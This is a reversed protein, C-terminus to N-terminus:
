QDSKSSFSPTLSTKAPQEQPLIVVYRSRLADFAKRKLEARESALWASRVEPEIEEFSPVRAPVIADAFVLHWGYGSELPGQWVGPKVEFLAKAFGPGFLKAVDDYSRDGYFDQFMFPDALAAAGPWEGSKQALQLLAQEASGRSAEGRQDPSFYLHRFSVRPSLAFTNASSQFWVKLEEVTPEKIASVDETLFEMKQALRRKVITDGKDLGLAVAERYLIEERVRLEVLNQMQQPTPSPRGQALWAISMQRLDDETLEISNSQTAADWGRNVFQYGAFLLLGIVVFHLLPENLLRKIRSPTRTDSRKQDLNM